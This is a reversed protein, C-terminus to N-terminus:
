VDLPTDDIWDAYVRSIKGGNKCLFEWRKVDINEECTKVRWESSGKQMEIYLLFLYEPLVNVSSKNHRYCAAALFAISDQWGTIITVHPSPLCHHHHRCNTTTAYPAPLQQHHHTTTTAASQPLPCNHHLHCTLSPPPPSKTSPPPPPPKTSSPPPHHRRSTTTASSPQPPKEPPPLTSWHHH